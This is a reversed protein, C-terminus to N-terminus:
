PYGQKGLVGRCDLFSFTSMFRPTGRCALYERCGKVLLM